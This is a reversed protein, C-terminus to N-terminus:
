YKMKKQMEIPKVLVVPSKADGEKKVSKRGRTGKKVTSTKTAPKTDVVAETTQDPETSTSSEEVSLNSENDMDITLDEQSM